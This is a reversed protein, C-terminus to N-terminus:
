TVARERFDFDRFAVVPQGVMAVLRVQDLFDRLDVAEVGVTERLKEGQQFGLLVGVALRDEVVRHDNIATAIGIAVAMGVGVQGYDEGAVATAREVGAAIQFRM